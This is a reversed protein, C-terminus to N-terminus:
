KFKVQVSGPCFAKGYISSAFICQMTVIYAAVAAAFGFVTNSSLPLTLEKVSNGIGM